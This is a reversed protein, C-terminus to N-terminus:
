AAKRVLPAKGLQARFIDVMARDSPLVYTQWCLCQPHPKDPMEEPIYEGRNFGPSHDRAYQDCIDPTPHSKSLNWKVAKVWPREEAITRQRDHFAGNIETRALRMAAYSVGGPTGPDIFRKVDNALERPDVTGTILHKQVIRQIRATNIAANKWVRGSLRQVRSDMDFQSAIKAQVRIGELLGAATKEGVASRLVQDIYEAASEATANAKPFYSEILPQITNTWLEEQDEKLYQLYMALQAERTRAGVGPTSGLKIIKRATTIAAEVLLRRMRADMKVQLAVYKILPDRDPEAAM